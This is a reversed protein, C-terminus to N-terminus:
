PREDEATAALPVTAADGLHDALFSRIIGPRHILFERMEEVSEEWGPDYAGHLLMEQERPIEPRIQDTLADLAEATVDPHLESALVEEARSLLLDRGGPAQIVAQLLSTVPASEGVRLPAYTEPSLAWALTDAIHGTPMLGIGWEVDWIHWTWRAEPDGRRRAAVWSTQPWEHNQIFIQLLCHDVFSELDIRRGLDELAEPMSFDMGGVWAMLDEWADIDGEECETILCGTAFDLTGRIVDWDGEGGGGGLVSGTPPECLNFLGQPVGNIRLAVFIGRAARHGMSAHFDRILQDRLYTAELPSLSQFSDSAGARLVLHTAITDELGPVPWPVSGFDDRLHLRFSRKELFRSVGGHVRLGVVTQLAPSGDCPFLVAEALREWARGRQDAHQLIGWQEGDLDGPSVILDLIPLETEPSILYSASVVESPGRESCFARCRLPTSESVVLPGVCLPDSETPVRGDWTLHVDAGEPAIVEVTVPGSLIGSGRSLSPAPAPLLATNPSGPTPQWTTVFEGVGKSLRALSTDVRQQGFSLSDLVVFDLLRTLLLTEGKASLAFDAHPALRDVGRGDLWVIMREGPPLTLGAPFPWRGPQNPDDSLAFETLLLTEDGTNLIEAWDGPAHFDPDRVTQLNTVMVESIVLDSVASPASGTVQTLGLCIFFATFCRTSTWFWHMQQGTAGFLTLDCFSRQGLFQDGCCHIM